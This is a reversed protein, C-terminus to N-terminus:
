GAQRAANEPVTRREEASSGTEPRPRCNRLVRLVTGPRMLAPPPDVLGAVRMFAGTIRGENTAAAQLRRLYANGLRVKATRRGEVGPWALDGGASIDWPADVVKAIDQFFRRPQPPGHRLHRLLSLSELAAVTMGQGYVPNFSCVADGLVLLGDPFRILREYRRRVSAPFRIAAPGGIPEIDRIAQYVYPIPLTRAFERFGDLGSAPHDGLMSTLSVIHRDGAVRGFFAGRPQEPTALPIISRDRELPSVPFRYQCTTYSLRITVREEPPRSYGFAELWSPTRSGRGTADVVLDAELTEDASNRAQPRIRVGTVRSHDKTTVLGLIDCRERLRVNSLAAVRTRIRSELDPRAVTAAVLGTKAPRLRRGNLYWHMEAMDVMPIGATALEKTLGPFLEELVQQGRALLAHAHAGQPVGRRPETVGKVPDRDVVTVDVHSEALARAALLGAMSGGLVVARRGSHEAM